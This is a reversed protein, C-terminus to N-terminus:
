LILDSWGYGRHSLRYQRYKGQPPTFLHENMGSIVAVIFWFVIGGLCLMFWQNKNLKNVSYPHVNDLPCQTIDLCCCRVTFSSKWMGDSISDKRM